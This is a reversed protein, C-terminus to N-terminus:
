TLEFERNNVVSKVLNIFNHDLEEEKKDDAFVSSNIYHIGNKEYFVGGSFGTTQDEAEQLLEPNGPIFAFPQRFMFFSGGPRAIPEVQVAESSMFDTSTEESDLPLVELPKKDGKGASNKRLNFFFFVILFLILFVTVFLLVEVLKDPISWYHDFIGTFALAAIGACLLTSILFCSFIKQSVTV